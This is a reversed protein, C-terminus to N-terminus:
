MATAIIYYYMESKLLLFQAGYIMNIDSHNCHFFDRLDDGGADVTRLGQTSNLWVVM